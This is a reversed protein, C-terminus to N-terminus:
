PTGIIAAYANSLRKTIQSWDFQEVAVRRATRGMEAQLDPKALFESIAAAMGHPTGDELLGVPEEQFLTAVDGCPGAVTPRGLSMYLGLKHPWRGRNSPKDPFPLVFVDACSLLPPLDAHPVYGLHRVNKELGAAAIWHDLGAPANGTMILLVDPHKQVVKVTAELLLPIDMTVDAASYGLIPTNQPIGFRERHTQSDICAYLDTDIGGPIHFIRDRPVGLGAAREGLARAIVTTGDATPRFHEEYYTEISGFLLQYWRPRLETILGGRGWWDCWDMFFPTAHKRLYRRLPYITAPRSDFAHVLDYAAPQADLWRMRCVTNWPDWGSRLKGPLLDPSEVYRIGHEVYDVTGRRRDDSICLLTVEHGSAALGEALHGARFRAKHKRHHNVFLIKM